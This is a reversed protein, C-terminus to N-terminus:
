SLITNNKCQEIKFEQEKAATSAELEEHSSLCIRKLKNGHM